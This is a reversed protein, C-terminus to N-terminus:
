MLILDEELPLPASLFVIPRQEGNKLTHVAQAGAEDFLGLVVHFTSAKQTIPNLPGRVRGLVRIRYGTFTEALQKPNPNSKMKPEQIM